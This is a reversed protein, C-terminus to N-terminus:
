IERDSEHCCLFSRLQYVPNVGYHDCVDWCNGTYDLINRPSKANNDAKNKHGRTNNEDPSYYLEHAGRVAGIRVLFRPFCDHPAKNTDRNHRCCPANDRKEGVIKLNAADTNGGRLWLFDMHILGM